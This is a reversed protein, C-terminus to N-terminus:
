RWFGFKKKEEEEGDRVGEGTGLGKRHAERGLSVKGYKTM